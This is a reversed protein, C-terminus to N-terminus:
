RTSISFGLDLYFRTKIGSVFFVFVFFSLAVCKYVDNPDPCVVTGVTVYELGTLDAAIPDNKDCVPPPPTSCDIGM